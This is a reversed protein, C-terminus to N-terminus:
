FKEKIKQLNYFTTTYYSEYGYICINKFTKRKNKQGRITLNRRWEYALDHIEECVDEAIGTNYNLDEPSNGDVLDFLASAFKDVMEQAEEDSMVKFQPGKLYKRM